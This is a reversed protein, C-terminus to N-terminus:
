NRRTARHDRWGTVPSTPEVGVAISPQSGGGGCPPRPSLQGPDDGGLAMALVGFTLPDIPSVQFLLSSLFRTLLAAVMWGQVVGAIGLTGGQRVVMRRLDAPRAGLALRSGLEHTRRAVVYSIVGYVGVMGLFLAVGAAITLLVLTFSTRSLSRSLIKELTLIQFLPLNPNVAGQKLDGQCGCVIGTGVFPM